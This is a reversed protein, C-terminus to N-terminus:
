DDPHWPYLITAVDHLRKRARQLTDEFFFLDSWRSESYWLVGIVSEVIFSAAGSGIALTMADDLIARGAETLSVLRHRRDARCVARAIFGLQQLSRLMRSVTPATVGLVRRLEKQTIGYSPARDIAFMMDFRAPTLGDDRFAFLLARSAALARQHARKMSFFIAHM